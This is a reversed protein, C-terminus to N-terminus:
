SDQCPSAGLYKWSDGMQGEELLSRTSTKEETPEKQEETFKQPFMSPEGRSIYSELIKSESLDVAGGQLRRCFGQEKFSRNDVVRKAFSVGKELPRDKSLHSIQNETEPNRNRAVSARFKGSTTAGAHGIGVAWKTNRPKKSERRTLTEHWHRMSKWLTKRSTRCAHSMLCASMAIRRLRVASPCPMCNGGHGWLAGWAAAASGRARRASRRWHLCGQGVGTRTSVLGDWAKHFSPELQKGGEWRGMRTPWSWQKRPRIWRFSLLFWGRVQPPGAGAEGSSRRTSSSRWWENFNMRPEKYKEDLIKLVEKWGSEKTIKELPLDELLEEPEGSLFGLLKAGWKAEPHDNAAVDSIAWGPTAM